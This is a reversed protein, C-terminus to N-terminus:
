VSEGTIAWAIVGQRSSLDLKARIHEQHTEVTRRSIFLREAIEANTLGQGTLMAVEHERASLPSEREPTGLAQTITEAVSMAAGAALLQEATGPGVQDAADALATSVLDEVLPPVAVGHRGLARAAGALRLVAPMRGESHALTLGSWLWEAEGDIAGLLQLDAIAGALHRHHGARDGRRAAVYSLGIRTRRSVAPAPEAASLLALALHDCEAGRDVDEANFHAHALVTLSWAQAHRDGRAQFIAVSRAGCRIARAPDGAPASVQSLSRLGRALGDDDGLATMLEIAEGAHEVAEVYRGQRYGLQCLALLAEARSRPSPMGVELLEEIRERAANVHGRHEWYGALQTVLRLALDSCQGRSWSVAALVNGQVQELRAYWRPGGVSMLGGAATTAVELFYHAHAARIQDVRESAGLRAAAHQRIPELLRYSRAGAGGPETLLLSHDVLAALDDVLGAGDGTVATIAHLDYAGVFVSLNELVTLQAPSLRACSWAITASLTAHERSSAHPIQATALAVELHDLLEPLGLVRAQRAALEIALPLGDLRECIRDLVERAEEDLVLDTVRGARDLFLAAAPAAPLPRVQYLQEGAAALPLRSTALVRLHPCSALLRGVLAAVTETLHECNDLLLLLEADGVAELVADALATGPRQRVGLAAALAGALDAGVSVTALAVPVVGGAVTDDLARVVEAALRTKGAGPPGVLTVLRCSQLLRTVGDVEEARGVFSTLAFRSTPWDAGSVGSM